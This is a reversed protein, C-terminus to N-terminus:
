GSEMIPTRSAARPAPIIMPKKMAPRMPRSSGRAPMITPRAMIPILPQFMARNLRSTSGQATAQFPMRCPIPVPSIHTGSDMTANAVRGVRISGSAEESKWRRRLKPDLKKM